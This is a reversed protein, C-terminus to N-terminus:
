KLKYAVGLSLYSISYGLEAYAGWNDNFEYRGGVVWGFAFGGNTVPSPDYGDPGYYKSSGVDYGLMLGTYTDFKDIFEYHAIARPGIVFNTYKWGWTDGTFMGFDEKYSYYGLYLGLGLNLGDVDFLNNVIGQEYSAEVPFSHGNLGFGVKVLKTGKEFMEQANLGYSVLVLVAFILTIKKM